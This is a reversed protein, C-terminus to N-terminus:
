DFDGDKIAQLPEKERHERDQTTIQIIQKKQEKTLLEPRGRGIQTEYLSPDTISVGAEEARQTIRQILKTIGSKSVPPAFSNAVELHTANGLMAVGVIFAKEPATRQAPM